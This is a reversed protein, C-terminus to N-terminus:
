LGLNRCSVQTRLTRTFTQGAADREQVTISILVTRTDPYNFTLASVNDILTQRNEVSGDARYQVRELLDNGDYEYAIRELDSEDIGDTSDPDDISGDMDRDATFRIEQDEFVEISAGATGLPDFGAMHIDRVVFDIGMRVTQQAKAVRDQTYYSRNSSLFVSYIAGTVVGMIAMAILIEILTFADTNGNVLRRAKNQM